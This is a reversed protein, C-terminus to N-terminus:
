LKFAALTAGELVSGGPLATTVISVSGTFPGDMKGVIGQKSQTIIKSGWRKATASDFIAIGYAVPTLPAVSDLVVVEGIFAISEGAAIDVAVATSSVVNTYTADAESTFTGAAGGAGTSLSAALLAPTVATSDDGSDLPATSDALAVVGPSAVDAAALAINAVGGIRSVLATDDVFVIDSIPNFGVAINVAQGRANFEIDGYIGPTVGTNTISLVPNVAPNGTITLGDAAGVSTVTGSGGGVGPGTITFNPWEGTVVVGAAGTFVPTSLALNLVDGTISGSLIESSISLTAVGGAGAGPVAEGPCCGATGLELGITINPWLGIVQVGDEGLFNPSDVHVNVDNDVRSVEAIGTGAVTFDVPVPSEAVVDKLADVGFATRVVTNVAAFAQPTSGSMGREVILYNGTTDTVKVEEAVVGDSLRLYTWEGAGFNVLTQLATLTDLDIPLLPSASAVDVTLTGDIEQFLLKLAM